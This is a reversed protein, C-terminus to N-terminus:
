FYHRIDRWVTCHQLFLMPTFHETNRQLRLQFIKKQLLYKFLSMQLSYFHTYIKVQLHDNSNRIQIFLVFSCLKKICNELTLSSFILNTTILFTEHLIFFFGPIIFTGLFSCSLLEYERNCVAIYDIVLQEDLKQSVLTRLVLM